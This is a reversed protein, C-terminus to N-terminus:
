ECCHVLLLVVREKWCYWCIGTIPSRVTVFHNDSAECPKYQSVPVNTNALM